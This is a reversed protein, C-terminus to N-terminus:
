HSSEARWLREAEEKTCIEAGYVERRNDNYLEPRRWAIMAGTGDSSVLLYSSLKSYYALWEKMSVPRKWWNTVVAGELNLVPTPKEGEDAKNEALLYTSQPITQNTEEVSAITKTNVMMKDGLVVFDKGDRIASTVGQAQKPSVLIPEEKIRKVEWYKQPADAM